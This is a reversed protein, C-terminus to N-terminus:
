INILIVFIYYDLADSVHEPFSIADVDVSQKLIDRYTELSDRM